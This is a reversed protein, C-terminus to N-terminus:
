PVDKGLRAESWVEDGLKQDHGVELTEIVTRHRRALHEMELRDWFWLGDVQRWRASLRKQMREPQDYLELKSVTFREADIWAVRRAYASEARPTSEVVHHPRGDIPEDRLLRHEDEDVGRESLDEYAFDTGAFSDASQSGSVRRVKRLGPLYIWRLDEAEPRVHSVVLFATGRINQPADFVVLRKSHVGQARGRQDQWYSRTERVREQGEDDILRWTGRLYEDAGRPRAEVRQMVERGDLAAAPLAHLGLLLCLWRARM